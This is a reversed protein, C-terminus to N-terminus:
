RSSGLLSATVEQFHPAVNYLVLFSGGGVLGGMLYIALLHRNGLCNLVLQGFSHLMLMRWLTPFFDIHVWSYTFLTWPHHLFTIWSSSLCLHQYLTQYYTEYGAIVLVVKILVFFIFISVNILIIQMLGNESRQFHTKVFRILENM